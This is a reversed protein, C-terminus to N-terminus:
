RAFPRREIYAALKAMDVSGWGTPYDWGVGAVYGKGNYGNNGSTVDHVLSPTAGVSAYISSAPFGLENDHASQLRAWFGVFLPSSLSTGGIQMVDGGVRILAGTSQAGDFSIDPVARNTARPSVALSRQWAPAPLYASLGGTSAWLKGSQDLGENWVTERAYSGDSGTFLTTGGVAIVHPSSAPWSLSYTTGDPYGRNNCEYAGEDGSSVSFTQGQAVAATFIQEEAALTGDAEADAECWGLSVNIVKAQNDTVAQNFAQTLGTNGPADLDAQYFVLGALAGGAAGVISQSDLDWEVQGDPDDAYNGDPNGTRVSSVNVPALNNASTFQNLDSTAQDAGGITIVGVTTNEATPLAAADYIGPFELPDHGVAMGGDAHAPQTRPGTRAMTHARTINQLGLVAVVSEGLAQPVQAATANAYAPRGNKLVHVLPTRFATKVTGATGDASILMRNRAVKINVFGNQRLHAVVREIQRQTPAFRELFTQPTLFKHYSPDAPQTVAAALDRLKGFDRVKMAVVIHAAEGAKAERTPEVAFTRRQNLNLFGRTATAVWQTNEHAAGSASAGADPAAAAVTATATATASMSAAAFAAGICLPSISRM